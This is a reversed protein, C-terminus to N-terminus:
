ERAPEAGALKHRGARPEYEVVQRRQDSLRRSGARSVCSPRYLRRSILERTRRSPSRRRRWRARPTSPSTRWRTAPRNPGSASRRHDPVGGDGRGPGQELVHLGTGPCTFGIDIAAGAMEAMCHHVGDENGVVVVGAVKNFAVPTGDDTTESLMADMRELRAVIVSSPQGLWTPMGIM